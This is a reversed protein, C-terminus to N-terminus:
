KGFKKIDKKVQHLSTELLTELTKNAEIEHLNRTNGEVESANKITDSKKYEVQSANLKVNSANLNELEREILIMKDINVMDCMVFLGREIMGIHRLANGRHEKLIEKITMKAEVCDYISDLDSRNGQLTPRGIIITEDIKTESKSCYAVAQKQNGKRPEIHITEDNFVKKIESYRKQGDFECYAQWHEKKTTPCAEKQYVMFKVDTKLFKPEKFFTIMVNRYKSTMIGSM